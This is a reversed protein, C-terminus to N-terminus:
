AAGQIQPHATLNPEPFVLSKIVVPVVNAPLIREGIDLYDLDALELGDIAIVGRDLELEHELIAGLSMGIDADLALIVPTERRAAARHAQAVGEALARLRDYRPEGDWRLAIAVPEDRMTLDLQAARREIRARVEAPSPAAALDGGGTMDVAVVPIGHMPLVLAGTVHVTNGSLQVSFQSAGIVTARIREGTAHVPRGRGVLRAALATALDPGLDGFTPPIESGLYEAVGGSLVLEDVEADPPVEGALLHAPDPRGEVADAIRDALARALRRRDAAIALEGLVLPIGLKVALRAMDTEIRTARGADDVALLRAGGSLALTAVIAGDVCWALKTTGGGIDVNLVRRGGRSRAVAGSGHAALLAELNHGATACVFRGGEEAFLEAIARANTRELAVGTLIVAGADVDARSLGAESYAADVFRGLEQADITDDPRYPTLLIPSRHLVQRSVVVFRSSYQDGQRHLHLRSFMLHSTASGVDVGVTTLEVNDTQWIADRIEAMRQPDPPTEDDHVHDVGPAHAHDHGHGPGGGPGHDHGHARAPVAVAGAVGTSM